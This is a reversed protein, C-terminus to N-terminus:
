QMAHFSYRNPNFVFQTLLEFLLRPDFTQLSRLNGSHKQGLHNRFNLPTFSSMFPNFNDRAPYVRALWQLAHGSGESKGPRVPVSVRLADGGHDTADRVFTKNRNVILLFREQVGMVSLRTLFPAYIIASIVGNKPTKVEDSEDHRTAKRALERRGGPRGLLPEATLGKIKKSFSAVQEQFPRPCASSAWRIPRSARLTSPIRGSIPERLRM